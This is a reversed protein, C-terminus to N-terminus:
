FGTSYDLCPPFSFSQTPSQNGLDCLLLSCFDQGETRAKCPLLYVGLGGQARFKWEELQGREKWQSPEAGSVGTAWASLTSEPGFLMYLKGTSPSSIMRGAISGRGRAAETERIDM